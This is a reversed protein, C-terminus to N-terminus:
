YGDWSRGTSKSYQWVSPEGRVHRCDQGALEHGQAGARPGFDQQQGVQGGLIFVTVNEINYKYVM